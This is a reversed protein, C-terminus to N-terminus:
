RSSTRTSCRPGCIRGAGQRPGGPQPRRTHRLAHGQLRGGRPRCARRDEARRFHVRPSGEARHHRQPQRSGVLVAQHFRRDEESGGIGCSRRSCASRACDSHRIRTTFSRTSRSRHRRSGTPWRRNVRRLSKFSEAELQVFGTSGVRDVLADAAFLGSAFILLVVQRMRSEYYGDNSARSASMRVARRGSPRIRPVSYRWYRRGWRQRWTRSEPITGSICARGPWGAPLSTCITSARRRALPPDDPGACWRVPMAHELAAALSQFKALPWNKKPSGSFPHIVAFDEREVECRIRPIGDSACPAIRGSRSSTSTPRTFRDTARCPPSSRSRCGPSRTASNPAIPGTGRCSPISAACHRSCLRRLSPSASSTSARRHSQAPAIRSGRRTLRESGRDLGGSLRNEPM